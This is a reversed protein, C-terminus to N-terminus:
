ERGRPPEAGVDRERQASGDGARTKRFLAALWDHLRHAPHRSPRAPPRVLTHALTTQEGAGLPAVLKGAEIYADCYSAYCVAAGLGQAAAELASASTDFKVPPTEHDLGVGRAKAWREWLPYRGQVHLRRLGKLATEPPQGALRGALAPSLVMVLREAAMRPMAAEAESADRVEVAVNALEINPDTWIASNVRLEVDPNEELFGSLRPLLWLQTFSYPASLTVARRLRRGHLGETAAAAIDLAEGIGPLYAEGAETLDLGNPRRVFLKRALYAELGRVRQSIAAQTCGLERAAGTFSRHRAAAEFAQLYILSPLTRM